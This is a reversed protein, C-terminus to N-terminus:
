SVPTSHTLAPAPRLTTLPTQVPLLGVRGDGAGVTSPDSRCSWPPVACWTPEKLLLRPCVTFVSSSSPGGRVQECLPPQSRPVPRLLRQACWDGVVARAPLPPPPLSSPPGPGGGAACDWGGPFRAEALLSALPLLHLCPPSHPPRRTGASEDFCTVGRGSAVFSGPRHGVTLLQGGAPPPPAEQRTRGFSHGSSVHHGFYGNM